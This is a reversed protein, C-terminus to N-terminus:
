QLSRPVAGRWTKTRVTRGNEQLTRSVALHFAAADSRLEIRTRLDLRRSGPLDIRTTEEGLFASHAPDSDRTTWVLREHIQYRRDQIKSLSEGEWTRRTDGTKGDHDVRDVQPWGGGPLPRADAREERPEPSPLDPTRGAGPPLVPLDVFTGPGLHLATTMPYPTPWIMPFLANSVALRIRHGPQFTWTTFHLDFALDMVRGPKLPRPDLRSARQAGNLVGGTVLSVSGDPWVDELRVAWHALPAGAAARLAVHPLGAIELPSTLPPGAFVLSGPDDARQDGTPDGWWLGAAAGSGPAYRLPEVAPPGATEKLGHGTDPFLRKSTAGPIPWCVQRWTGPTQALHADPPSGSRVFLLLRPGDLAGTDRGKLWHDWWRLAERRWEYNPGPAGNDPWDHGWPGVTARVPGRVSALLRPVSDRYGDLLGGIVYVPIRLAGPHFRPSERRWFVGDRQRRLYTFIWPERDFRDAFYAADLPYAPPRPLGNEHDIELAYSDLHLAGDIYHVDDHYLDDSPHLVLVAALHPPRRMAVQLTNIASWSIGWMGVKGDCGPLKAIWDILAVADALEAESYERPPLAGTSSGTGRVDVKVGLYGHRAFWSYLPHDRVYFSDDKRYPLLEFLAPFTEGPTRPVPRYLTVSLRAGHIPAELREITFGYAPAAAPPAGPPVASLAGLLPLLLLCWLCAARSM